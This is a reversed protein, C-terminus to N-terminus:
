QAIRYTVASRHQESRRRAEADASTVVAGTAGTADGTGTPRPRRPAQGDDRRATVATRSRIPQTLSETPRDPMRTSPLATPTEVAAPRRRRLATGNASRLSTRAVVLPLTVPARGAAAVRERRRADDADRERAERLRIRRRGRGRPRRRRQAGGRLAAVALPSPRCPNAMPRDVQTEGWAVSTGGHINLRASSAPPPADASAEPSAPPALRSLTRRVPARPPRLRRELGRQSGPHLPVTGRRSPAATPDSGPPAALQAGLHPNSGTTTSPPLSRGSGAAVRAVRDVMTDGDDPTGFPAITRVLEAVSAFRDERKKALCRMIALALAQPVDQRSRARLDPMPETLVVAVLETVTMAM